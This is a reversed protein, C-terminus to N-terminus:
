RSECVTRSSSPDQFLSPMVIQCCPQEAAECPFGRHACAGLLQGGCCTPPEGHHVCVWCVCWSSSLLVPLVGGPSLSPLPTIPLSSFRVPSPTHCHCNEATLAVACARVYYDTTGVLELFIDVRSRQLDLVCNHKRLVQQHLWMKEKLVCMHVNKDWKRRSDNQVSFSIYYFDTCRLWKKLSCSM